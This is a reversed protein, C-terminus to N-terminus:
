KSWRSFDKLSVPNEMSRLSSEPAVQDLDGLGCGINSGVAIYGDLRFPGVHVPDIRDVRISPRSVRVRNGHLEPM